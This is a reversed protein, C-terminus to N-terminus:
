GTSARTLVVPDVPVLLSHFQVDDATYKEKNKRQPDWIPVGNLCVVAHLSGSMKQSDVIGITYGSIVNEKFTVDYFVTNITSLWERWRACWEDQSMERPNIAPIDDLPIHLVSAVCATFCNWDETQSIFKM